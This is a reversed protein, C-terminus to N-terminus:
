RPLRGGSSEPRAESARGPVVIVKGEADRRLVYDERHINDLGLMEQTAEYKLCLDKLEKFKAIIMPVDRYRVSIARLVEPVGKAEVLDSLYQFEESTLVTM